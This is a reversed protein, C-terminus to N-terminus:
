FEEPLNITVQTGENVKSNIEIEGHLKEVFSKVTYLGLGSGKSVETGRYFMNFVKELNEEKIGMGNDSIIIQKKEPLSQYSIRIKNEKVNRNKFCVANEILNHLIFKLITKDTKIPSDNKFNYTIKSNEFEPNNKMGKIVDEVINQFMVEEIQPESQKLTTLELLKRLIEDLKESTQSILNIYLSGEQGGLEMKALESLGMLSALPGRLDHSARYIFTNLEKNKEVLEDAAKKKETIDQEFIVYNILKGENDFIPNIAVFNWFTEGSKKYNIMEGVFPRQKELAEKVNRITEKDTEEGALMMWSNGLVEAESYESMELYKPNAYIIPNGKVQPNTLIIGVGVAEIAKKQILLQEEFRKRETIDNSVKLIGQVKNRSNKIRKARLEVWIEQGSKTLRRVEGVFNEHENLYDKVFYHNREEDSPSLSTIPKGIAEEKSFGFTAEAGENWLEILGDNNVFIVSDSISQLIHAQFFANEVAKIKETIDYLILLRLLKNNIYYDSSIIDVYIITGDKKRNIWEGALERKSTLFNNLREQEAEDFIERITLSLLEGEEYEYHDRAAANVIEVRLSTIDYGIMPAPNNEFLQRYKEESAQIYDLNKKREISYYIARELIREDFDGKILYDQAGQRVTELATESDSLGSLVIIPINSAFENVTLFTTKGASDPLFLDLLILDFHEEDLKKAAESLTEAPIISEFQINCLLLLEKILIFDGPNDEVILCKIKNGLM